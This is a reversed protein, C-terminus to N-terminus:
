KANGSTRALWWAALWAVVQLVVVLFLAEPCFCWAISEEILDGLRPVFARALAWVLLTIAIFIM